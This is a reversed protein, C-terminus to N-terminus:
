KYRTMMGRLLIKVVVNGTAPDVYAYMTHVAAEGLSSYHVLRTMGGSHSPGLLTNNFLLPIKDWRSSDFLTNQGRSAGALYLTGRNMYTTFYRGMFASIDYKDPSIMGNGPNSVAAIPVTIWYGGGTGSAGFCLAEQETCYTVYLRSGVNERYIITPLYTGTNGAAARVQYIELGNKRVAWGCTWAGTSGCSLPNGNVHCYCSRVGNPGTHATLLAGDDGAGYNYLNTMDYEEDATLDARHAPISTDIDVDTWYGGMTCCNPLTASAPGCVGAAIKMDCMKVHYRDSATMYMISIIGSGLVPKADTEADPPVYGAWMGASCRNYGSSLGDCMFVSRYPGTWASVVIRDSDLAVSCSKIATSASFQKWTWNGGDKCSAGLDAGFNCYGVYGGGPTGVAAAIRSPNANMCMVAGLDSKYPNYPVTYSLFPKMQYVPTREGTEGGLFPEVLSYYDQSDSLDVPSSSVAPDPISVRNDMVQSYSPGYYLSYGGIPPVPLWSAGMGYASSASVAPGASFEPPGPIKPQFVRIFDTDDRIAMIPNPGWFSTMPRGDTFGSDVATRGTWNAAMGCSNPCTMPPWPDCFWMANGCSMEYLRAEGPDRMVLRLQNGFMAMDAPMSYATSLLPTQKTPDPDKNSTIEGGIVWQSKMGCNYNNCSALMREYYPKGDTLSKRYREWTVHRSESEVSVVINKGTWEDTGGLYDM